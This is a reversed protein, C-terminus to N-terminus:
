ASRVLERLYEEARLGLDAGGSSGSAVYRPRRTRGSARLGTEVLRAVAASFSEGSMETERILLDLRDPLSITRRALTAEM